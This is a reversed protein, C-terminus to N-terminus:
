RKKIERQDQQYLDLFEAFVRRLPERIRDRAAAVGTSERRVSEEGSPSQTDEFMFRSRSMRQYGSGSAVRPSKGDDEHGEVDRHAERSARGRSRLTDPSRIPSPSSGVSSGPSQQRPPSYHHYPASRAGQNNGHITRSRSRDSSNNHLSAAPSPSEIPFLSSPTSSSSYSLSHSHRHSPSAADQSTSVGSTRNSHGKGGHKMWEDDGFPPPPGHQSRRRHHQHQRENHGLASLLVSSADANIDHYYQDRSDDRQSRTSYPGMPPIPAPYQPRATATMPREDWGWRAAEYSDEGLSRLVERERETRLRTHREDDGVDFHGVPYSQLSSDGRHTGLGRDEGPRLGVSSPPRSHSQAQMSHQRGVLGANSRQTFNADTAAHSDFRSPIPPHVFNHASREIAAVTESVDRLRQDRSASAQKLEEVQSELSGCRSIMDARINKSDEKAADMCQVRTKEIIEVVGERTTQIEATVSERTRRVAANLDLGQSTIDRQLKEVDLASKASLVHMQRDFDDRTKSAVEQTKKELAALANGSRREVESIDLSARSISTKLDEVVGKMAVHMSAHEDLFRRMAQIAEAQKLSNAEMTEEQRKLAIEIYSMRSSMEAMVGLSQEISSLRTMQAQHVM